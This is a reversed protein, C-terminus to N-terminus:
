GLHKHLFATARSLALKAQAPAHVEPRTDNVFAHDADYVHLEMERGRAVLADRVAEALSAKAWQDREAFHGQIPPTNATSWDAYHAPALGYFPVVADLGQLQAACVFAGAGGMCFGTVGVKGNCRPHAKLLAVAGAIKELAAPWKLATMLQGAEGADKTTVGEYLDPAIVVFGERAFRECLDRIHGNVGWWEQLLVLGGVRADGPPLALEGEAAHGDRATFRVRETM